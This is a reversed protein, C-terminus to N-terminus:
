QLASLHFFVLGNCTFLGTFVSQSRTEPVAENLSLALPLDMLRQICSLVRCAQQDIM